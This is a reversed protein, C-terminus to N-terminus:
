RLWASHLSATAARSAAVQAKGGHESSGQSAPADQRGVNEAFLAHRAAQILIQKM